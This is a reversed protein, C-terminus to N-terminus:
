EEAVFHVKRSRGDLSHDADCEASVLRGQKDYKYEIKSSKGGSYSINESVLRDGNYSLTRTYVVNAPAASDRGVVKLLRQGDWTFDLRPAKPEGLEWAHIVRGQEDYDLEFLHIADWAFPHFYRNGSFGVAARKGTAKEAIRTDIRPSNWLTLYGASSGGQPDNRVSYNSGPLFQMASAMGMMGGMGAMGSIRSIAGLAGGGPMAGPITGAMGGPMATPLGRMGGLAGMGGMMGKMSSLGRLGNLMSLGGTVGGLMGFGGFGGIGPISIPIKHSKVVVNDRSV